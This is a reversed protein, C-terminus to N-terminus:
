PMDTGYVQKYVAQATDTNEAEVRLYSAITSDLLEALTSTAGAGKRLADQAIRHSLENLATSQNASFSPLRVFMTPIQTVSDADSALSGLDGSVGRWFKAHDYFYQTNFVLDSTTPTGSSASVSMSAPGPWGNDSRNEGMETITRNLTEIDLLSSITSNLMSALNTKATNEDSRTQEIVSIGTTILQKISDFSIDGIVCNEIVETYFEDQAITLAAFSALSGSMSEMFSACNSMYDTMVGSTTGAAGDQSSVSAEYASSASSSLWGELGGSTPIYVTSSPIVQAVKSSFADAITLWQTILQGVKEPTEAISDTDLKFNEDNAEATGFMSDAEAQVEERRPHPVEDVSLVGGFLREWWRPKTDSYYDYHSGMGGLAGSIYGRVHYQTLAGIASTMQDLSPGANDALTRFADKMDTCATTIKEVTQTVTM